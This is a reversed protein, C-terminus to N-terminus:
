QNMFEPIGQRLQKPNQDGLFLFVSHGIDGDWRVQFTGGFAGPSQSWDM